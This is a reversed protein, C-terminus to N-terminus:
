RSSPQGSDRRAVPVFHHLGPEDGGKRWGDLAETLDECLWNNCTNSRLTRPLRCGQPGQFLCGGELHTGEVRSRYEAELDSSALTNEESLIRLVSAADLFAHTGGRRCCWGRCATCGRALGDAETLTPPPPHPHGRIPREAAPSAVDSAEAIVRRLHGLFDDVAGPPLPTPAARNEPVTSWSLDGPQLGQAELAARARLDRDEEIDRLEEAQSMSAAVLCPLRGCVAATTTGQIPDLTEGCNVCARAPSLRIDTGVEPDAARPVRGM